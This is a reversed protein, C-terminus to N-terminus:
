ISFCPCERNRAWLNQRWAQLRHSNWVTDSFYACKLVDIGQEWGDEGETFSCPFFHGHVNIYASFLGSECPEVLMEIKEYVNESLDMQRGAALFKPTSCSDLGVALKNELSYELIKQYDDVNALELNGHAARGKKKLALLVVARAGIEKYASLLDIAVPATDKHLVLHINVQKVGCSVLRDVTNYCLDLNDPHASVAVAGCLEATARAIDDTLDEGTLTYNPIFGVVERCYRMMAVFNPNTQAGTIGFAVQTLTEPMRWMISTFTNMDMNTPEAGTNSKYCFSCPAGGFGPCGNTSIELDLLEPGYPCWQPDENLTKGWRVLNGNTKDFHMNYDPSKITKAKANSLAHM